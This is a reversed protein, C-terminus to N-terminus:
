PCATALDTGRPWCSSSCFYWACEAGHADCDEVTGWAGCGGQSPACGAGRCAQGPPCRRADWQETSSATPRACVYELPDGEAACATEGVPVGNDCPPACRDGLCRWGPACGRPTWPSATGPATCEYEVEPTSPNCATAGLQVGNECTPGGGGAAALRAVSDSPDLYGFATADTGPATYGPGWRSTGCRYGAAVDLMTRVEWHVHSNRGDGAVYLDQQIVEGIPDGARVSQGEGVVVGTLHGYMSYVDGGVGLAARSASSLPHEVVVVRGPYSLTTSVFRVTGPGIASVVTGAPAAWDEGAHTLTDFPEDFCTNRSSLSPNARNFEIQWLPASLPPAWSAAPPPPTSGGTWFEAGVERRVFRAHDDYSAYRENCPYGPYWTCGNYSATLVRLWADWRPGDITVGNLWAIAAARDAVRPGYPSTQLMNLVFDIGAEVNGDLSLVRAGDRAITQEYTGGDLQFLGIGGQRTACAGDSGGAMVPGGCYSSWPGPCYTGEDCQQLTSEASAVGALPLANTIGQAAAVRRIAELHFRRQASTLADASTEVPQLPPTAPEAACAGLFLCLGITPIENTRLM